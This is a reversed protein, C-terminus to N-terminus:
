LHFMPLFFQNIHEIFYQHFFLKFLKIYFYFQCFDFPFELVM